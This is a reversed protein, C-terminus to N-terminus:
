CSAVWRILIPTSQYGRSCARTSANRIHCDTRAHGSFFRSLFGLDDGDTIDIGAAAFVGPFTDLIVIGFLGIGAGEFATGDIRIKARQEDALIDGGDDDGRRVVPM